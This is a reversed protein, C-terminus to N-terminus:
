WTYRPPSSRLAEVYEAGSGLDKCDSWSGIEPSAAIEQATLGEGQLDEDGLDLDDASLLELTVVVRGRPLASPLEDLVLGDETIEGKIKLMPHMIAVQASGLM